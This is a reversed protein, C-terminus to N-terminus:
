TRLRALRLVAANGLTRGEGSVGEGVQPEGDGMALDTLVRGLLRTPTVMGPMLARMPPLLGWFYWPLKPVYPHIEKHEGPDVGGSRLTIPRLNACSPDRALALLDAETRGKVATWHPSLVCPSTTAGESSVYVFTVRSPSKTAALARAFALPYANTIQEYERGDDDGM